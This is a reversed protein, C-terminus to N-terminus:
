GDNSKLTFEIGHINLVMYIWYWTCEIGYVNPIMYDFGCHASVTLLVLKCSVTSYIKKHFVQLTMIVLKFM